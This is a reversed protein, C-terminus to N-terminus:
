DCGKFQLDTGCDACLMYPNMKINLHKCESKKQKRHYYYTFFLSLFILISMIIEFFYNEIM